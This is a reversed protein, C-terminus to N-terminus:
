QAGPPPGKGAKKAARAEAKAQKRAAKEAKAASKADRAAQKADKKARKADVKAQKKQAKALVKRKKALVGEKKKLGKREGKAAKRDAKRQKKAAKRQAKREVRRAERETKKRRKAEAYEVKAQRREARDHALRAKREERYAALRAAYLAALQKKREKYAAPDTRKLEALLVAQRPTPAVRRPRGSELRRIEARERTRRTVVVAALLGVLTLPIWYVPVHAGRVYLSASTSYVGRGRTSAAKFELSYSTGLDYVHDKPTLVSVTVNRSQHAPVYVAPPRSVHLAAPAQVDFQYVDPYV